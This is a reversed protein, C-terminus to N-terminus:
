RLGHHLLTTTAIVRLKKTVTLENHSYKTEM